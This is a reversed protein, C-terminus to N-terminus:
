LTGGARLARIQGPFTGKAMENQGGHSARPSEQKTKGCPRGQPKNGTVESSRCRIGLWTLRGASMKIELIECKKM